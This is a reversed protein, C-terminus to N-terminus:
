WTVAKPFAHDIREHETLFILAEDSSTFYESFGCYECRALVTGGTTM